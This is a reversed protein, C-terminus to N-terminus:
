KKFTTVAALDRVNVINIKDRRKNEFYNFNVNQIHTKKRDNEKRKKEGQKNIEIKSLINFFLLLFVFSCCRFVRWFLCVFLVCFMFYFM